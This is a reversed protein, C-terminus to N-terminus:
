SPEADFTGELIMEPRRVALGLREEALITTLNSTFNTGHEESFRVNVEERDYLTAAQAFAGLCFTDAAIARTVVLPMRWLTAGGPNLGGMQGTQIWMYYGTTGKELEIDEWTLPHIIAGSAEGEALEILTRGRRIADAKTDGTRGQSWSYAQRDPDTLLGSIQGGSGSAYLLAIDEKKLVGYALDSDINQRLGPMDALVQRTTTMWHAITQVQFTREDFMMQAEPKASGEAVFGAAGFNNLRQATITGTAPTVTGSAVKFRYHNADIIFVRHAGNYGAQGAGAIQILDGDEYGHAVQNITAVGGTQTIGTVSLLITDTFGTQRIYLGHTRDFPVMPLLDRIRLARRLIPQYGPIQYPQIFNTTASTTLAKRVDASDFGLFAPERSLSKMAIAPLSGTPMRKQAYAEFAPRNAEILEIMQAGITKITEGGDSGGAFGGRQLAKELEDIRATAEAKLTTIEAQAATLASLNTDLSTELRKMADQHEKSAEPRGGDKKIAELQAEHLDLQKKIEKYGDDVAKATKVVETQIEELTPM